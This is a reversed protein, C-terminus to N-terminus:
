PVPSWTQGGDLSQIRQKTKPNVATMPKPPPPMHYGHEKLVQARLASQEEDSMDKYPGRAGYWSSALGPRPVAQGQGMVQNAENIATSGRPLIMPAHIGTEVSHGTPISRGMSISALGLRDGEPLSELRQIGALAQALDAPNKLAQLYGTSSVVPAMAAQYAGPNTAPNVGVRTMIELADALMGVRQQRQRLDQTKAREHEEQAMNKKTEAQYLQGQFGANKARAEALIRQANQLIMQQRIREAQLQLQPMGLAMRGINGLSHGMSAAAVMDTGDDHYALGPM